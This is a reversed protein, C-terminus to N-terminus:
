ADSPDLPLMHREGFKELDEERMLSELSSIVASVVCGRAQVHPDPADGKLIQYNMVQNHRDWEFKLELWLQSISRYLDQEDEEDPLATALEAVHEAKEVAFRAFATVQKEDFDEFIERVTAVVSETNVAKTLQQALNSQTM